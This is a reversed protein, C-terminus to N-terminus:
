VGLARFGLGKHAEEEVFDGCAGVHVAKCREAVSDEFMGRGGDM